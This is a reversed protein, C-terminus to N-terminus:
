GGGRYNGSELAAWLTTFTKAPHPCFEDTYGAPVGMLWEIFEASCVGNRPEKTGAEFRVATGLDRVSRHTLVHCTGVNSHRPTPWIEDTHPLVINGEAKHATRIKQGEKPTYLTPDFVLATAAQKFVPPVVHAEKGGVRCGWPRLDQKEQIPAMLKEGLAIHGLLEFAKKAAAPVIANGLASSRTSNARTNKQIMRPPEKQIAIM